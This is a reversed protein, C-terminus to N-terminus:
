IREVRQVRKNAFYPRVRKLHQELAELENFALKKQWESFTGTDLLGKLLRISNELHGQIDGNEYGTGTLLKTQRSSWDGPQDSGPVIEQAYEEFTTRDVIAGLKHISHDRRWSWEDIGYLPMDYKNACLASLNGMAFATLPVGHRKAQEDLRRLGEISIFGYLICRRIRSGVEECHRIAEELSIEASRGSAVTDQVILLVDKGAPLESFDEFVINLQRQVMGDHDRYSAHTYRPRTYVTSFSNPILRSAARHLQYGPAARLIQEFVIADNELSGTRSLELIAPLAREAAALALRELEEGVVYPHCAIRRTMPTDILFTEPSSLEVKFIRTDGPQRAKKLGVPKTLDVNVRYEQILSDVAAKQLQVIRMEPFPVENSCGRMSIALELSATEFIRALHAQLSGYAM